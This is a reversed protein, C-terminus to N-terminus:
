LGSVRTSKESGWLNVEEGTTTTTVLQWWSIARAALNIKVSANGSRVHKSLYGHLDGHGAILKVAFIALLREFGDQREGFVFFALDFTRLTAAFVDTLLSGLEEGDSGLFASPIPVVM